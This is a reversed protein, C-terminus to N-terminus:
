FWVVWSNIFSWCKSGAIDVAFQSDTVSVLSQRYSTDLDAPTVGALGFQGVSSVTSDLTYSSTQAWRFTESAATSLTVYYTGPQLDPTAFLNLPMIEMASTFMPPDVSGQLIALPASTGIEHSLTWHLSQSAAGGVTGVYASFSVDYLPATLTWSFAQIM